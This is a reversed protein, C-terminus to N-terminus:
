AASLMSPAIILAAAAVPGNHASTRRLDQWNLLVLPCVRTRPLRSTADYHTDLSYYSPAIFAIVPQRPNLIVENYLSPTPSGAYLDIGFMPTEADYQNLNKHFTSAVFSSRTEFAGVLDQVLEDGGGVSSSSPNGGRLLEVRAANDVTVVSPVSFGDRAMQAAEPAQEDSVCALIPAQVLEDCFHIAFETLAMRAAHVTARGRTRDTNRALETVFAFIIAEHDM